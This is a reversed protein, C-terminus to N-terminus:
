EQDHITTDWLCSPVRLKRLCHQAWRSGNGLPFIPPVRLRTSLMSELSELMCRVHGFDHLGSCTCLELEIVIVIFIVIVIVIVM